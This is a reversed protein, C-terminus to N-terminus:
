VDFVIDAAWGAASVQVELDHWTVAKIERLGVHRDPEFVYARGRYEVCEGVVRVEAGVPLEAEVDFRFLLEKLLAILRAEASAGTVEFAVDHEDEGTDASPRREVMLEATALAASELLAAEDLGRVRIRLDATHELWEYDPDRRM